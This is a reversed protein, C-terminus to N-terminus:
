GKMGEGCRRLATTDAGGDSLREGTCSGLFHANLKIVHTWIYMCATDDGCTYMMSVAYSHTYCTRVVVSEMEIIVTTM